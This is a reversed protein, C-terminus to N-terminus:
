GGPVAHSHADRSKERSKHDKIKKDFGAGEGGFTM